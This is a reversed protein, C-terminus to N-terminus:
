EYGDVLVVHVNGFLTNLTARLPKRPTTVSFFIEASLKKIQQGDLFLQPDFRYAAQKGQKPLHVRTEAALRGTYHYNKGDAHINLAVTDGLALPIMRLYFGGSLVDLLKEPIELTNEQGSIFNRYTATLEQYDFDIASELLTGGKVYEEHRVVVLEQADMYSVYRNKTKFIISFFPLTKVTLEFRYVERGHLMMKGNNAITFKGIPLGLFVAKYVLEEPDSLPSFLATAMLEKSPSLPDEDATVANPGSFLCLLLCGTIICNKGTLLNYSSM